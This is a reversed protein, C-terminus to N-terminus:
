VPVRGIEGGTTFIGAQASMPLTVILSLTTTSRKNTM